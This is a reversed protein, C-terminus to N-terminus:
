QEDGGQLHRGLLDRLQEAQNRTMYLAAKAHIPIRGNLREIQERGDEPVTAIPPAIQGAVLFVAERTGDWLIAFQNVVVPNETANEPWKPVLQVEGPNENATETVVVHHWSCRHGAKSREIWGGVLANLGPSGLLEAM